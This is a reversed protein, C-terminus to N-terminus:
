SARACSPHSTTRARRVTSSRVGVDDWAHGEVYSDPVGFYMYERVSGQQRVQATLDTNMTMDSLLVIAPEYKELAAQNKLKIIPNPKFAAQKHQPIVLLYPNTNPKEHTHLVPVPLKKTANLLAGFKGTRAGLFLIPAKKARSDTILSHREALYDAVSDVLERSYIISQATIMCYYAIPNFPQYYNWFLSFWEQFSFQAQRNVDCRDLPLRSIDELRSFVGQRWWLPRRLAVARLAADYTPLYTPYFMRELEPYDVGTTKMFENGLQEAYLIAIAQLYGDKTRKSEVQLRERLNDFRSPDFKPNMGGALQTFKSEATKSHFRNVPPVEFTYGNLTAVKKYINGEEESKHQVGLRTINGFNAPNERPDVPEEEAAGKGATARSSGAASGAAGRRSAATPPSPSSM